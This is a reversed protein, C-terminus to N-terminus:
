EKSDTLSSQSFFFFYICFGLFFFRRHTPKPNHHHIRPLTLTHTIVYIIEIFSGYNPTRWLTPTYSHIMLFLDYFLFLDFPTIEWREELTANQRRWFNLHRNWKEAITTANRYIKKKRLKKLEFNNKHRIFLIDYHKVLLIIPQFIFWVYKNEKM